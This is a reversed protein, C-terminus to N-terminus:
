RSPARALGGLSAPRLGVAFGVATMVLVVFVIRALDGLTRGALVASRAM